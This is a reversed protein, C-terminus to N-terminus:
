ILVLRIRRRRRGNYDNNNQVAESSSSVNSSQVLSSFGIRDLNEPKQYNDLNFCANFQHSDLHDMTALPCDAPSISSQIIRSAGWFKERVVTGVDGADLPQILM